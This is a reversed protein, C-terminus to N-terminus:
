DNQLSREPQDDSRHATARDLRGAAREALNMFLIAITLLKLREGSDRAHDAASMCELVKDRYRQRTQMACMLMLVACMSM